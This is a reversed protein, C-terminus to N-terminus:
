STTPILPNNSYVTGPTTLTVKLAQCPAATVEFLVNASQVSTFIIDPGLSLTFSAGLVFFHGSTELFSGQVQIGQLREQELRAAATTTTVEIM